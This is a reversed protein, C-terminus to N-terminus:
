LLIQRLITKHGNAPLIKGINPIKKENVKFYVNRKVESFVFYPLKISLWNLNTERPTRSLIFSYYKKIEEMSTM